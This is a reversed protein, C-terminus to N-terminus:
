NSILKEYYVKKILLLLRTTEVPFKSPVMWSIWILESCFSALRTNWKAANWFFLFAIQAGKRPKAKSDRTKECRCVRTARGFRRLRVFADDFRRLM